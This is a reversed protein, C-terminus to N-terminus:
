SAGTPIARLGKMRLRRYCKSKTCRLAHLRIADELNAKELDFPMGIMVKLGFQFCPEYLKDFLFRAAVTPDVACLDAVKLYGCLVCNEAIRQRLIFARNGGLLDCDNSVM